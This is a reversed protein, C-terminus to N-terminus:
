RIVGNLNWRDAEGFRPVAAETPLPHSQIVLDDADFISNAPQHPQQLSM